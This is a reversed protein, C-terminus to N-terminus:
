GLIKEGPEYADILISDGAAVQPNSVMEFEVLGNLGVTYKKSALSKLPECLEMEYLTQPGLYNVRMRWFKTATEKGQDISKDGTRSPRVELVSLVKAKLTQM